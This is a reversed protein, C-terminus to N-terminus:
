LDCDEERQIRDSLVEAFLQLVAFFQRLGRGEPYPRFPAYAAFSTARSGTAIRKGRSVTQFLLFFCELLELLLTAIRKGRSVTQFRLM